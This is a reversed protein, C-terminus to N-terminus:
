PLPAAARGRTWSWAALGAIVTGAVIVGGVGVGLAMMSSRAEVLENGCAWAAGSALWAIVSM